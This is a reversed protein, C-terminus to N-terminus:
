EELHLCFGKGVIIDAKRRMNKVIGMPGEPPQLTEGRAVLGTAGYFKHTLHNPHSNFGKYLLSEPNEPGM